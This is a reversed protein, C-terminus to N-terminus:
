SCIEGNIEFYFLIFPLLLLLLLLLCHRSLGQPPSVPFLFDFFLFSPLLFTVPFDRLITKKEKKEEKKKGGNKQRERGGGGGGGGEEPNTRWGGNIKKPSPGGQKSGKEVAV